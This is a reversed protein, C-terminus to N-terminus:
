NDFLMSERGAPAATDPQNKAHSGLQMKLKAIGGEPTQQGKTAIRYLVVKV